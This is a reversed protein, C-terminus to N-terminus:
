ARGELVPELVAAVDEVSRALIYLGGFREILTQWAKQDRSQRGAESKVEIELRRGGPIIGTLDAQGPVGFQVVQRGFRASGVNARWLRLRRDTGYRRLIDNQISRERM